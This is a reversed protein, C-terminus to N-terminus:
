MVQHGKPLRGGPRLAESPRQRSVCIETQESVRRKLSALSLGKSM